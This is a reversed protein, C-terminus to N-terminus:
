FFLVALISTIFVLLAPVIGRTGGTMVLSCARPGAASDDPIRQALDAAAKEFSEDIFNYNRRLEEPLVMYIPELTLSIVPLKALPFKYVQVESTLSSCTRPCAPCEKGDCYVCPSNMFETYTVTRNASTTVTQTTAEAAGFYKMALNLDVGLTM